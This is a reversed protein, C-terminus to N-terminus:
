NFQSLSSVAYAIDPRTSVALYMLSGILSQYPVKRMKEIEEASKPEMEKSLKVSGDLPTTVTKSDQMGFRQLVDEIYKKQTMFISKSESDQKFEIGLCYHLKGLDKMQFERSLDDKLKEFIEVRDTAVIIDDVYVVVILTSTKTKQIYVCKDGSLPELGLTKFRLDLKKFWQRGSQKLGYISRKLLYVLDQNGPDEFGEAQEMHIEEELDGNIYAMVVDLQYLMRGMEASIALIMRISSQRAVPAFTKTFDMGPQQNYGKAVLRAKRREVNGDADYKTRLVWRCGIVKKKKPREILTWAGIKNLADFEEKMARRWEEAYPGALAEQVSPNPAEQYTLSAM